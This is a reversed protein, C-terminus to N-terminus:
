RNPEPLTVLKDPEKEPDNCPSPLPTVPIIEDECATLASIAGNLPSVPLGVSTEDDICSAESMVPENVKVDDEIAVENSALIVVADTASRVIVNVFPFPLVNLRVTFVPDSLM